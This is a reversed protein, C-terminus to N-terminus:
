KNDSQKFPISIKVVTGGDKRPSITLNGGCMLELRKRINNLAIHPENNDSSQFGPGDDEVIIEIIDDIKRTVVSIHIPSKSERMGHVVANEVIPQLTLPPLRFLTYQTDFNIFLSDEFQAQEVALYARTHELEENFQITEKSAIAAFNKRLYTTFDLTVKKAKEPDQDCLYYIGMMSNYIFHPRMQLVMISAKQYAIEQEQRMHEVVNDSLIIAYMIIAFIAMGTVIFVEIAIFMHIFMVVSMLIMYILLGYYYKKSLKKRRRIVAEINLLLMAVLPAVFLAWMSGRVFQNDPTVYYFVNTFQAIVIIVFYSGLLGMVVAFLLSHKIKEGSYHLLFITPMFAIASMSVDEFLYIIKEIEAKTPDYWFILATICIVTCFFLVTFLSVFYRKSWKDLTPVVAALVIGFAMIVLLAGSLSFAFIDYWSMIM